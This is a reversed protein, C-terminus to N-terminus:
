SVEDQFHEALFGLLKKETKSTVKGKEQFVFTEKVLTAGDKLQHVLYGNGVKRIVISENKDM